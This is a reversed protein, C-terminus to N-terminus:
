GRNWSELISRVPRCPIKTVNCAVRFLLITRKLWNREYLCFVDREYSSTHLVHRLDNDSVTARCPVAIANDFNNIVIQTWTYEPQQQVSSCRWSRVYGPQERKKADCHQKLTSNNCRKQTFRRNEHFCGLFPCNKKKCKRECHQKLWILKLNGHKILDAHALDLIFNCCM